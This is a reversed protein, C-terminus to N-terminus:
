ESHPPLLRNKSSSSQTLDGHPGASTTLWHRPAAECGGKSAEALNTQKETPKWYSQRRVQGAETEGAKTSAWREKHPKEVGGKPRGM